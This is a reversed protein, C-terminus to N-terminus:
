PMLRSISKFVRDLEIKLKQLDPEITEFKGSKLKKDITVCIRNSEEAGLNGCVGKLTHIIQNMKDTNRDQFLKQLSQFIDTYEQKFQILLNKYLSKNGGVSMLGSQINIGQLTEPFNIESATDDNLETENARRKGPKIWKVLISFLEAADIPKTTYDSMGADICKEREGAIAHATLAIIPIQLGGPNQTKEWKRIQRTAQYGDMVPMQIDMLVAKFDNSRSFLDFAIKGNDAATVFFGESELLEVAVQQNIKNDEALLIRAGCIKDLGEIGQTKQSVPVIHGSRSQDLVEMITDFLVSPGVPKELFSDIGVTKAQRRVEERGFATIMLIKPIRHPKTKELIIKTAAIGDMEPMHWDMLILDYPTDIQTEIKRIAEFGSAATEPQFSMSTLMNSLIGRSIESDDVVLARKGQLNLPTQLGARSGAPRVGFKATFIFRSGKGIESEIKIKGGMLEILSKCISLGLGTGGYKRTISGDAQSFSLFLRSKQAETLGIGTDEITFRLVIDNSGEPKVDEAIGVDILVHGRKTFKIANDALNNLIQRLRLSDGVLVVPIHSDLHFLFEIEKEEAKINVMGSISNLVDELKFENSELAIKGAEIKSFDLIDNIIGLLSKASQDINKIYDRQKRSLDSKLTLHSLGIIANMPTRIEHSMNALFESKVRSATEAQKKAMELEHLTENLDETRANVAQRYDELHRDMTEIKQTLTQNKNDFELYLKRQIIITFVFLSTGWGLLQLPDPMGPKIHNNFIEGYPLLSFLIFPCLTVILYVANKRHIQEPSQLQKVMIAGVLLFFLMKLFFTDNLAVSVGKFILFGSFVVELMYLIVLYKLANHSIPDHPKLELFEDIMLLPVIKAGMYGLYLIFLHLHSSSVGAGEM